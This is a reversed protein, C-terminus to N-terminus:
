KENKKVGLDSKIQEWEQKLSYCRRGLEPKSHRFVLTILRSGDKHLHSSVVEKVDYEPLVVFSVEAMGTNSIFGVVDFMFEPRKDEKVEPTLARDVEIQQVFMQLLTEKKHISESM